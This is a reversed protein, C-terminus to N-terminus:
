GVNVGILVIRWFVGVPDHVWVGVYVIGVISSALYLVRLWVMSRMLMAIVTLIYAAHGLLGAPSLASELTLEM